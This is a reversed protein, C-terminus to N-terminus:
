YPLKYTKLYKKQKLRGWAEKRIPGSEEIFENLKSEKVIPVNVTERIGDFERVEELFDKITSDPNHLIMYNILEIKEDMTM